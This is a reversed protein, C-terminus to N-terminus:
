NLPKKLRRHFEEKKEPVTKEVTVLNTPPKQSGLVLYSGDATKKQRELSPFFRPSDKPVPVCSVFHNECLFVSM